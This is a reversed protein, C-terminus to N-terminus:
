EERHNFPEVYATDKKIYKVRVTDGKPIYDTIAIMEILEGDIRGKGVPRLDSVVIGQVQQPYDEQDFLNDSGPQSKLVLNTSLQLKDGRRCLLYGMLSLVFSTSILMLMVHMLSGEYQYLSWLILSVGILLLIGFSPIYFEAILILIGLLFALLLLWQYMGMNWSYYTIARLGGNFYLMYGGFALLYWGIKEKSFLAALVCMSALIFFINM